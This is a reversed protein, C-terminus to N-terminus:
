ILMCIKIGGKHFQCTAIRERKIEIERKKKLSPPPPSSGGLYRREAPGSM